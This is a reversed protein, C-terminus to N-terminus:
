ILTLITATTNAVKYIKSAAEQLDRNAILAILENNLVNASEDFQELKFRDLVSYETWHDLVINYIKKYANEVIIQDSSLSLMNIVLSEANIDVYKAKVKNLININSTITKLEEESLSEIKLTEVITNDELQSNVDAIAIVVSAPNSACGTLSTVLLASILFKNM